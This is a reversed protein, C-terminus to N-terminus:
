PGTLKCYPSRHHFCPNQKLRTMHPAAITRIVRNFNLLMFAINNDDTLLAVLDDVSDNHVLLYRISEEPYASLKHLLDVAPSNATHTHTRPLYPQNDIEKPM